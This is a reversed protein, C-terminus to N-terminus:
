SFVAIHLHLNVDDVAVGGGGGAASTGSTLQIDNGADTTFYLENPTATKVWIQGYAATDGDANAQEKLTVTGEVTLKTKPATLGIGVKNNVEDVSLSGSDVDLDKLKRAVLAHASSHMGM